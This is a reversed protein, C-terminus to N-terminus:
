NGMRYVDPHYYGTANGVGFIIALPAFILHAVLFWAAFNPEHVWPFRVRDIPTLWEGFQELGYLGFAAVWGLIVVLGFTSWFACAKTHM